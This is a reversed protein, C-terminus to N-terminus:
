KALAIISIVISILSIVIPIWWLKIANNKANEIQEKKKIVKNYYDSWGAYKEFVEYGRRELILSYGKGGMNMDRVLQYEILFQIFKRETQIHIRKDSSNPNTPNYYIESLIREIEQHFDYDHNKNM